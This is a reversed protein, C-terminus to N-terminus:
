KFVLLVSRPCILVITRPVLCWSGRPQSPVDKTWVHLQHTLSHSTHCPPPMTSDTQVPSHVPPEQARPTGALCSLRSIPWAQSLPWGSHPHDVAALKITAWRGPLLLLTRRRLVMAWSVPTTNGSTGSHGPNQAWVARWHHLGIAVM